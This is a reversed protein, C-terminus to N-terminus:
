FRIVQKPDLRKGDKIVEFHLHPGTAKGTEGVMGLIEGRNVKRGKQVTVSDLKTYATSYGGAHLLVVNKGPGKGKEYLSEAITVEGDAAALVPTGMHAPIDVGRHFVPRHEIPDMSDGYGRVPKWGPLPNAFDPQKEAAKPAAQADGQNQKEPPPSGATPLFVMGFATIFVAALVSREPGRSRFTQIRRIRESIKEPMSGLGAIFKMKTGGTLNIKLAAVLDRCYRDGKLERKSLVMGDCLCERYFLARSGALWAAPNFFYVAQVANQLKMWLADLCKVHALEHSIVSEALSGGRSLVVATPLYIAPHVIGLTFPSLFQGSSVVRVPRRIGYLKKWRELVALLRIDRVPAARRVLRRFHVARQTYICACVLFGTLWAATVICELPSISADMMAGRNEKTRIAPAPEVPGSEISILGSHHMVRLQPFVAWASVPSTWGVPLVLRLLVLSWMALHAWVPMRRFIRAALMVAGLVVASYLTEKWLFSPVFAATKQFLDPLSVTM